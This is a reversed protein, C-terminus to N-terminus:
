EKRRSLCGNEAADIPPLNLNKTAKAAFIALDIFVVSVSNSLPPMIDSRLYICYLLRLFTSFYLTAKFLSITDAYFFHCM